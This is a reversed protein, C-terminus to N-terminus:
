RGKPTTRIEVGGLIAMADISLVPATEDIREPRLDRADEIGGLVPTGGMSVRWDPPVLIEIGGLVATATLTAGTAALRAQRLDLDVGGLVATLSAGEFAPSTCVVKHGGLIGSAVLANGTTQPRTRSTMGAWKLLVYVGAVVLVAPWVWKWADEGLVDTSFGLLILGATMWLVPEVSGHSREAFQVLGVAVLLLPWWEDITSGADLTGAAELLYLAGVTIVVLALLVRGLDRVQRV